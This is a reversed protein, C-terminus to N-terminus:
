ALGQAEFAGLSAPKLARLEPRTEGIDSKSLVDM